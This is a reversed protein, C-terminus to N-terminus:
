RRTPCLRGDSDAILNSINVAEKPGVFTVKFALPSTSLLYAVAEPCDACAVPGRYVAAQSSPALSTSINAAIGLLLVWLTVM